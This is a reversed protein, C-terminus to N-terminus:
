SSRRAPKSGADSLNSSRPSIGQTTCCNSVLSTSMTAHILASDMRWVSSVPGVHNQLRERGSSQFLPAVLPFM